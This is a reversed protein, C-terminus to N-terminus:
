CRASRGATRSTTSKPARGAVAYTEVVAGLGDAPPGGTIKWYTDSSDSRVQAPPVEADEDPRRDVAAM